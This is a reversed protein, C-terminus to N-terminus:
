DFCLIVSDYLKGEILNQVGPCLFFHGGTQIFNFSLFVQVARVAERHHLEQLFAVIDLPIYPSHPFYEYHIQFVSSHTYTRHRHPEHNMASFNINCAVEVSARQWVSAGDSFSKLQYVFCVLIVCQATQFTTVLWFVFFLNQPEVTRM